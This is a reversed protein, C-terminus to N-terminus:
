GHKIRGTRELHHAWEGNLQKLFENFNDEDMGIESQTSQEGNTRVSTYITDGQLNVSIFAAYGKEPTPATYAALNRVTM